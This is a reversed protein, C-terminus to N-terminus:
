CIPLIQKINCQGAWFAVYKQRIFGGDRRGTGGEGSRSEGGRSMGAGDERGREEGYAESGRKEREM